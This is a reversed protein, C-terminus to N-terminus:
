KLKWLTSHKRQDVFRQYLGDEKILQEHTGQQTIRGQDIVIITTAHRVTKLRHAIMIITKNKMLEEMAKQLKDENEPDVNATAEDFIIIPADKLMARAISIRQKEGGSLSSGGEGILTQYGNPLAEIFDHCSAKKAAEVVMEHTAELKGFRINNEITDHFLYVDQFVMSIQDMLSELTYERIDHGGITISGQDIDWFRAILNCLTTKGSGSPGVIALTSKDPICLDIDSLIIRKDYSFSVHNMRIEHQDPHIVASNEDLIPTENIRNAHDISSSAVRIIAMGSGASEIQGFILFSVVIIMMTYTLPLTNDFYFGIAALMIIVSFFKLVFQQAMIYPTFLNEINLNTSFNYEIAKDISRDDRRTLNFSKVIFMGKITELVAEVLSAESQQRKLALEASKKEMKATIILYLVTGAIVISGIRWDFILVYLIFVLSNILGGLVNVLIMSATNEVDDLVTTTIGTLEGLSNDNFYGMPISKMRNGIYVRKNGSMFYGAHTQQLQSFYNCVIRGVISILMMCLSLAIYRKDQSQEVLATIVFFIAGIQLIHFIAHFFGLIISKGINKQEEGAFLWIKHLVKLM